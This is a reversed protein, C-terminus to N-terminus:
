DNPGFPLDEDYPFGYKEREEEKGELGGRGDGLRDEGTRDQDQSVEGVSVQGPPLFTGDKVKFLRNEIDPLTMLLNFRYRSPTIPHKYTNLYHWYPLFVIREKKPTGKLPVAYGNEILIDLDRNRCNAMRIVMAGDAIGDEDSEDNLHWYLTRAGMPMSTFQVTSTVNKSSMRKQAM